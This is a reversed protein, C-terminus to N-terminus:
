VDLEKKLYPISYAIFKHSYDKSLHDLYTFLQIYGLRDLLSKLNGTEAAALLEFTIVKEHEPLTSFFTAQEIADILAIFPDEPTQSPPITSASVSVAVSVFVIVFVSLLLVQNM